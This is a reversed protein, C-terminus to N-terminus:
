DPSSCFSMVSITALTRLSRMHGLASVAGFISAGPSDRRECFLWYRQVAVPLPFISPFRDCKIGAHLSLDGDRPTETIPLIM